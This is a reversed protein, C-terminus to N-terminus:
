RGESTKFVLILQLKYQMMISQKAHPSDASYIPNMMCELIHVTKRSQLASKHIEHQRKEKCNDGFLLQCKSFVSIVNYQLHINAKLNRTYYM